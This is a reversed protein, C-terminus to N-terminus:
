IYTYKIADSQIKNLLSFSNFITVDKDQNLTEIKNAQYISGAIGLAFLVGGVKNSIVSEFKIKKTMALASTFIFFPVFPLYNLKYSNIKFNQKVMIDNLTKEPIISYYELNKDVVTLLKEMETKEVKVREPDKHTSFGEATQETWARADITKKTLNFSEHSM